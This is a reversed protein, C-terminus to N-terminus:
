APLPALAPHRAADPAGLHLRLEALRRAHTGAPDAQRQLCQQRLEPLRLLHRVSDMVRLDFEVLVLSATIHNGGTACREESM